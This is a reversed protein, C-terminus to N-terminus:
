MTTGVVPQRAALRAASAPDHSPLYVTPTGRVFQQILQLTGSAAVEDPSVGDVVGAVLLQETYSTDGAFFLTTDADQVIVSMHGLTHGPTPVLTVDGARTLRYSDTFPGYVGDHFHVLRPAFWHPWHQPLAGRLQGRLGAAADYERRSLLIEARPFHSLGGAHDTHLHTLIVWRVDDPSLGRARLQPGIEDDPQVRERVGLRFYPNWWPFYNAQSAQATEGTDIVILGEPHEVVWVYIPLFDTWHSDLLTNIQRGLGSGVGQRQREKIAVLGTQIAHVRM